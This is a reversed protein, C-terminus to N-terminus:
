RTRAEVASRARIILALEVFIFFAAATLVIELFQMVGVTRLRRSMTSDSPLEWPPEAPWNDSDCAWIVPREHLVSWLYVMVIVRDHYQERQRRPLQPVSWVHRYVTQFLQAEM